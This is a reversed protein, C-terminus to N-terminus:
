KSAQTIYVPKLYNPELLHLPSTEGSEWKKKGILATARANPQLGGDLTWLHGAGIFYEFTKAAGDGLLITKRNKLIAPFDTETKGLVFAAPALIEKLNADYIGAFVENRRANLLCFFCDADPYKEKGQFALNEMTGVSVVPLGLSFALGMALSIGIRLGTYSGPGTSIALADITEPKKNGLELANKVLVPLLAAQSQPLFSTASYLFTEGQLLGVSGTQGSSELGLILASDL